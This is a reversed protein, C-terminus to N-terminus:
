MSGYRQASITHRVKNPNTQACVVCCIGDLVVFSPSRLSASSGIAVAGENDRLSASLTEPMMVAGREDYRDVFISDSRLCSDLRAARFSVMDKKLPGRM